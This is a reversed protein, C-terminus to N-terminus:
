GVKSIKYKQTGAPTEFQFSDGKKKGIAAQGLPSHISIKNQDLDVEESGVLHYIIKTSSGDKEISITSGVHVDDSNRESIIEVHKLVNELHNIRDELEAQAERAEQYEANESLDGLSKAYELSDAIEKRKKTKLIELEKSFEDFKQQTLYHQAEM